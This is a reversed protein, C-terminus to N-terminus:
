DSADRVEQRKLKATHLAAINKRRAEADENTTPAKPGGSPTLLIVPRRSKTTPDCATTRPQRLRMM